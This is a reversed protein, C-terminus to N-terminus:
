HGEDPDLASPEAAAPWAGALARNLLRTPSEPAEMVLLHHTGDLRFTLDLRVGRRGLYRRVLEYRQRSGALDEIATQSLEV